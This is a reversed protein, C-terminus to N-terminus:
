TFVLYDAPVYFSGLTLKSAAIRFRTPLLGLFIPKITTLKLIQISGVKAM